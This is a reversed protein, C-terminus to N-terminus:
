TAITTSGFSANAMAGCEGNAQTSSLNCDPIGNTNTDTWSRTTTNVAAVIGSVLDSYATTVAQIFRGGTFKLATKGNGFVDYALGVRPNIDKWNPADTVKPFSREAVLPTAPYSQAPVSSNLYDLRVGLNLTLHSLTWQDMAFLGDYAGVDARTLYPYAFETLSRPTGNLVSLSVQPGLTWNAISRWGHMEQFGVKFAHSGTVYTVIFKGNLQLTRHQTYGNAGANFAIGTSAETVPYTGWPL